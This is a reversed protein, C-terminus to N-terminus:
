KDEGEEKFLIEVLERNLVHFQTDVVKKEKNGGLLIELFRIVGNKDSKALWVKDLFTGIKETTLLEFGENTYEKLVKNQPLIKYDFQHSDPKLEDILARLHSRVKTVDLTEYIVEDPFDKLKKIEKVELLSFNRLAYIIPSFLPLMKIGTTFEKKLKLWRSKYPLFSETVFFQTDGSELLYYNSSDISHIKEFPKKLM